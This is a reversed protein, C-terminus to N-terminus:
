VLSCGFCEHGADRRSELQEITVALLVVMASFRPTSVGARTSRQSGLLAQGLIPATQCTCHPGFNLSVYLMSAVLWPIILAM